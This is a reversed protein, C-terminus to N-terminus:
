FSGLSIIDGGRGLADVGTVINIHDRYKESIYVISGNLRATRKRARIINDPDYSFLKNSFSKESWPVGTSFERHWPKYVETYLDNTPIYHHFQKDAFAPYTGTKYLGTIADDRFILHQPIHISGDFLNDLFDDGKSKSMEIMNTKIDTVPVDEIHPLYDGGHIESIMRFYTYIADGTDQTFTKCLADFYARNGCYIPNCELICERRSGQDLDACNDNNTGMAFSIENDLELIDKGKFEVHITKGTIMAKFDNKEKKTMSGDKVSASEDVMVFLKGMLIGNFRCLVDQVSKVITATNHSYVFDRLFEFIFTKGCGQNGKLILLKQTKKLHTFPYSLWRLIYKYHQVNSNAWVVYIHSLIPEILKYKEISWPVLKAGFGPFTNLLDVKNYGIDTHYPEFVLRNVSLEGSYLPTYISHYTTCCQTNGKEDKYIEHQTLIHIRSPTTPHLDVQQFLIEENEKIMCTLSSRAKIIVRACRSIDRKLQEEIEYCLHKTPEKVNVTFEKNKYDRVYNYWYYPEKPDYQNLPRKIILQLCPSAAVPVPTDVPPLSPADTFIPPPENKHRELRKESEAECYKYIVMRMYDVMEDTFNPWHDEAIRDWDVNDLKDNDFWDLWSSGCNNIFDMTSEDLKNQEDHTPIFPTANTTKPIVGNIIPTAQVRARATTVEM